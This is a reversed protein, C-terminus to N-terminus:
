WLCIQPPRAELEQPTGIFSGPCQTIPLSNNCVCIVTIAPIGITKSM